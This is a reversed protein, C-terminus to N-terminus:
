KQPWDLHQMFWYPVAYADFARAIQAMRTMYINPSRHNVAYSRLIFGGRPSERAILLTYGTQSVLCNIYFGGGVSRYHNNLSDYQQEHRLVDRWLTWRLSALQTM